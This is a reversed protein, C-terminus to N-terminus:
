SVPILQFIATFRSGDADPIADDNSAVYYVDCDGSFLGTIVSSDNALSTPSTLSAKAFSNSWLLSDTPIAISYKSTDDAVTDLEAVVAIQTAGTYDTIVKSQGIGTGGTITITAGNYYDDTPNATSALQIHTTDSGAALATGTETFTRRNYLKVTVASDISPNKMSARYSARPRDPKEIKVPTSETDSTTNKAFYTEIEIIKEALPVEETTVWVSGTYEYKLGTDSETFIDGVSMGTHTIREAHTGFWYSKSFEKTWKVAM